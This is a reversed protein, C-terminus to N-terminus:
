AGGRLGANVAAAVVPGVQTAIWRQTPQIIAYRGDNAVELWIGYPVGHALRLRMARGILEPTATLSGRAAGTRDTWRATARMRAEAQAALHEFAIELAIEVRENVTDLYVEAQRTDLFVGSGGVRRAM